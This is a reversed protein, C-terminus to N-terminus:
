ARINGIVVAFTILSNSSVIWIFISISLSNWKSKSDFYVLWWICWTFFLENIIDILNSKVNNYPRLIILYSVYVLQVISLSAIITQVTSMSILCILVSVFIIRRFLLAIIYWRSSRWEKIGSFFEKFKSHKSDESPNFSLALYIAFWVISICIILVIFAVALSVIRLRDTTNFKNIEYISSILMLQNMEMFVRIYYGFTMIIFWKEILWKLIFTFSCKKTPSFRKTVSRFWIILLHIPIMHLIAFLISLNNFISSDSQIGISDLTINSLTFDFVSFAFNYIKIKNFQIYDLPSMAFKLGTIINKVDIPLYVGSLILLLFIQMQNFVWWLSSLSSMNLTSSVIVVGATAGNMAQMATGVSKSTTSPETSNSTSSTTSSSNSTTNSSISTQIIWTGSTLNYGSSCTQCTTNGQGLWKLWNAVAWDLVTLKVLKQVPNTVGTINSNVYFSFITDATVNPTSISLQGTSPDITVWSPATSSGYNSISYIISTVGTTSCSLELSLFGSYEEIYDQSQDNAQLYIDSTYNPTSSQSYTLTMNTYTLITVVDNIVSSIAIASESILIDTSANIENM